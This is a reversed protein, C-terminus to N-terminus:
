RGEDVAEGAKRERSRKRRRGRMRRRRRLEGESQVESFKLYKILYGEQLIMQCKVNFQVKHPISYRVESEFGGGEEAEDGAEKSM